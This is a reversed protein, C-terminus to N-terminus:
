ILTGTDYSPILAMLFSFASPTLTVAQRKYVDLHTSSVSTYSVAINLFHFLIFLANNLYKAVTKITVNNNEELTDIQAQRASMGGDPGIASAMLGAFSSTHEKLEDAM